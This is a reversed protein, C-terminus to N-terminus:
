DIKLIVTFTNKTDFSSITKVSSKKGDQEAWIEYDTNSNLQGFRYEGDDPTIFSKQTLTRTDKLHVVAGKIPAEGKNVVKGQVTRSAAAQAAAPVSGILPLAVPALLLTAAALHTIRRSLSSSLNMVTLIRRPRQQAAARANSM